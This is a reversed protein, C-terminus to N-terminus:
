FKTSAAAVAAFENLRRIYKNVDFNPNINLVDFFFPINEINYFFPKTFIGRSKQENNRLFLSM